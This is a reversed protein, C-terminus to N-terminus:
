SRRDRAIQPAREGSSAACGRRDTSGWDPRVDVRDRARPPAGPRRRSTGCGTHSRHRCARAWCLRRLVEDPRRRAGAERPREDDDAVPGIARATSRARGRPRGRRRAEGAPEIAVVASAVERMRRQEDERRVAGFREAAHQELRAREADGIAAISVPPVRSMTARRPSRAATPSARRDRRRCPAGRRRGPAARLAEAAAARACTSRVEGRGGDDRADDREVVRQDLACRPARWPQGRRADRHEGAGHLRQVADAAELAVDVIQTAGGSAARRRRDRQDRSGASTAPCARRRGAVNRREIALPEASIVTGYTVKGPAPRRPVVISRDRRRGIREEAPAGAADRRAEDRRPSTSM